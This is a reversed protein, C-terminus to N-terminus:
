VLLPRGPYPVPLIGLAPMLVQPVLVELELFLALPDHIRARRTGAGGAGARELRLEVLDQSHEISLDLVYRDVALVELLPQGLELGLRRLQILDFPLPDAGLLLQAIR